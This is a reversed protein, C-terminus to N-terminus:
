PAIGHTPFTHMSCYAFLSTCLTIRCRACSQQQPENKLFFDVWHRRPCRLGRETGRHVFRDHASKQLSDNIPLVGYIPDRNMVYLLTTRVCAVVGGHGRVAPYQQVVVVATVIVAATTRAIGCLSFRVFPRVLWRGNYVAAAAAAATLQKCNSLSVVLAAASM